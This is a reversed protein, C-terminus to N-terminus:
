ALELVLADYTPVIVRGGSVTAQNFKCHHYKIGTNATDFLPLVEKSGDPFTGFNEADFAVFHGWSITNNANGYPICAWVVGDTGGNSSGTLLGGPMGGFPVPAEPSAYMQSCALYTLTGNANLRWARLNGNEGMCYTLVGNKKSIWWPCTGHLHHTRNAYITPIKSLDSPRPSADPNFYTLWGIWKFKDNVNTQIKDVAFDAPTPCTMANFDFVFGIGDKGCVLVYDTAFGTKEKEYLTCGGSNIDSDGAGDMNSPTPPDNGENNTPVLDLSAVTQYDPGYMRGTDTFFTEWMVVKLRGSTTGNPSTYHLRVASEGFNHKGDFDGNGVTVLIDGTAGHITPGQSGMWLGGGSGLKPGLSGYVTTTWAAGSTFGKAGVEVAVLWGQNTAASEIFSGNAVYIIKKGDRVDMALACRQKRPVNGMKQVPLGDGPDYEVGSLNFPPFPESADSLRLARLHHSSTTFKGDPSSMTVFYILDAALDLEPTGLIGWHDNIEYMDYARLNPIPNAMRRTWMTDHTEYDFAQVNNAMTALVVLDHVLGDTCTIAPAILAQGESGRQDGDLFMSFTQRLGHAQLYAPTLKSEKYNWGSRNPEYSRTTVAVVSPDASM